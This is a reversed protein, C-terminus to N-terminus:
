PFMEEDREEPTVRNTLEKWEDVSVREKNAMFNNYIEVERELEELTYVSNEVYVDEATVSPFCRSDTRVSQEGDRPIYQELDYFDIIRFDISIIEHLYPRSHRVFADLQSETKSDFSDLFPMSSVVRDLPNRLVVIPNHHSSFLPMGALYINNEGFYNFMNTHGCRLNSMVAFEPACLFFM